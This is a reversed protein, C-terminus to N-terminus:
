GEGGLTERLAGPIPLHDTPNVGYAGPELVAKIEWAAGTEDRTQVALDARREFGYRNKNRDLVLVVVPRLARMRNATVVVGVHGTNMEVVSGIPYIGMCQIFQEIMEAPFYRNRWLYMMKLADHSSVAKRYARDSTLADYCDVVGAIAGYRAIQTEKLGRMYGTGDYREHHAAVMEIAEAPIDHTNTLMKTGLPVHLKVLEFEERTLAAPKNLLDLPIRAKGLDHLLAGLGVIRLADEELGLHRGFALALICVRLSHQTTYEDRKKLQSLCMMADPNRVISAVVEAVVRKSGETDLSHGLRADDFLNLVKDQTVAYVERAPGLEQELTSVDPYRPVRALGPATKRLIELELKRNRRLQEEEPNVDVFVYECYRKLEEIESEASITFGQFLFPTELWPRDLDSVHMGVKLASVDIKQKM